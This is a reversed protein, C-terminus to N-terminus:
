RKEESLHENLSGSRYGKPDIEIQAFGLERLQPMLRDLHMWVKPIDIPSVEIRALRGHHRVRVVEIGLNKIITEAAGIQRLKEATIEQGFPIRTALCPSAPKDSTPLSLEKSITRIDEKKLGAENLPSRIGMERLARMGPRDKELDGAHSGDIITSFGRAQAEKTIAGFIAIKCIYCRNTHNQGFEPNSLIDMELVLPECGISRAITVAEEVESRAMHEGAVIMAIASDGLLDRAVKLLLTSDAGGSYAVAVPGISKIIETLRSLKEPAGM